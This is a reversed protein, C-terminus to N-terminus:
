KVTTWGGSALGSAWNLVVVLPRAAPSRQEDKIILFSGDRFVDYQPVFGTSVHVFSGIPVPEPTGPAPGSAHVKVAFM